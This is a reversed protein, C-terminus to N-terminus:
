CNSPMPQDGSSPPADKWWLNVLPVIWKGALKFSTSALVVVPVIWPNTVGFITCSAEVLMCLGDGFLTWDLVKQATDSWKNQWTSPAGGEGKKEQLERECAFYGSTLRVLAITGQCIGGILLGMTNPYGIIQSLGKLVPVGIITEFYRVSLFIRSQLYCILGVIALLRGTFDMATWQRRANNQTAEEKFCWEEYCKMGKEYCSQMVVFMTSTVAFGGIHEGADLLKDVVVNDHLGFLGQVHIGHSELLQSLKTFCKVQKIHLAVGNVGALQEKFTNYLTKVTASTLVDGVIKHASSAAQCVSTWNFMSVNISM